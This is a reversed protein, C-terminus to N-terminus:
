RVCYKAQPTYGPVSSAADRPRDSGACATFALLALSPLLTRTLAMTREGERPHEPESMKIM